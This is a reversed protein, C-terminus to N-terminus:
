IYIYIYVYMYVYIYLCIYLYIYIYIYIYVYMCVYMYIYIYIYINMYIYIYICICPQPHPAQPKPNRTAQNQVLASQQLRILNRGINPVKYNPDVWAPKYEPDFDRTSTFWIAAGFGAMQEVFSTESVQM